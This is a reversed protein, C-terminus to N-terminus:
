PSRFELVIAIPRRWCSLPRNHEAAQAEILELSLAATRALAPPVFSKVLLGHRVLDAIWEANTVDTKRGAVNRIYRANGVILGVHPVIRFKMRPPM